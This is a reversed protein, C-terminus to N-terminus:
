RAPKQEANRLKKIEDGPTTENSITPTEIAQEKRATEAAIQEAGIADAQTVKPRDLGTPALMQSARLSLVFVLLPVLLAFIITKSM